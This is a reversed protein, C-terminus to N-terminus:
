LLCLLHMYVNRCPQKGKAGAAQLLEGQEPCPIPDSQGWPDTGVEVHKQPLKSSLQLPVSMSQNGKEKGRHRKYAFLAKLFLLFSSFSVFCSILCSSSFLSWLACTFIYSASTGKTEWSHSKLIPTGWVPEAGGRVGWYPESGETSFHGWGAAAPLHAHCPGADRQPVFGHWDRSIMMIVMMIKCIHM